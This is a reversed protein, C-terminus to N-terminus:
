TSESKSDSQKSQKRHKQDKGKSKVFKPIKLTPENLMEIATYQGDKFTARVEVFYRPLQESKQLEPNYIFPEVPADWVIPFNHSKVFSKKAAPSLRKYIALTEINRYISIVPTTLYPLLRWVGRFVFGEQYDPDQAQNLYPRVLSFSYRTGREDPYHSVNPYVKLFMERSGNKELEEKLQTFRKSSRGSARRLDYKIGDITVFLKEDELYPICKILGIAQFVRENVKNSQKKSSPQAQNSTIEKDQKVQDSRVETKLDNNNTSDLTKEKAETKTQSSKTKSKKKTAAIPEAIADVKETKLKKSQTTQSQSATSQLNKAKERAKNILAQYMKKQRENTASNLLDELKQLDSKVAAM